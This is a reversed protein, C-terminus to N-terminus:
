ALEFDLQGRSKEDISRLERARDRDVFKGLDDVGIELASLPKKGRRPGDLGGARGGRGARFTQFVM